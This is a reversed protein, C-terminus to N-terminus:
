WPYIIHYFPFAMPNFITRMYSPLKTLIKQITHSLLVSYSATLSFIKLYYLFSTPCPFWRKQKGETIIPLTHRRRYRLLNKIQCFCPCFHYFLGQVLKNPLILAINPFDLFQLLSNAHKMLSFHAPAAGEQSM